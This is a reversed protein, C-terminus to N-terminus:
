KVAYVLYWASKKDPNFLDAEAYGYKVESFEVFLEQVEWILRACYLLLGKRNDYPSEKVVRYSGIDVYETRKFLSNNPHLMSLLLIGKDKLVRRLERIMITLKQPTGSYHVVNWSVVIDFSDSQFPIEDEQVLRLDLDGCRKRAEKIFYESIECGYCDYGKSRLFEFNNATGFGHDLLKAPPSPVDVYRGSFLRVVNEDPFRLVNDPFLKLNEEWVKKSNEFITM